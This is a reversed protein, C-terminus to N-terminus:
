RSSDILPVQAGWITDYVDPALRALERQLEVYKGHSAGSPLEALLNSAAVLQDRNRRALEVAQATTITRQARPSGTTWEGTEQRRYFGYKLASGGAISGFISPFEDDDKFELWYIMGDRTTEHILSLLAEGNHELLTDPGFRERFTHYYNDLRKRSLLEGRASLERHVRLLDQRLPQNLEVHNAANMRM